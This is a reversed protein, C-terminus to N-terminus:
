ICLLSASSPYLQEIEDYDLNGSWLLSLQLQCFGINENTKAAGSWGCRGGRGGAFCCSNMQKYGMVGCPLSLSAQTRVFRRGRILILRKLVSLGMQFQMTLQLMSSKERSIVQTKLQLPKKSQLGREFFFFHFFTPFSILVIGLSGPKNTSFTVIM